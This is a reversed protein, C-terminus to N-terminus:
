HACLDDCFCGRDSSSDFKAPITLASEMALISFIKWKLNSDFFFEKRTFFISSVRRISQRKLSEDSVTIIYDENEFMSSFM